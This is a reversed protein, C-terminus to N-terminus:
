LNEGDHTLDLSPLSVLCSALVSSPHPHSSSIMKILAEKTQGIPKLAAHHLSHRGRTMERKWTFLIKIKTPPLSELWDYKFWFLLFFFPPPICQWSTCKLLRDNFDSMLYNHKCCFMPSCNMSDLWSPYLVVLVHESACSYGCLPQVPM